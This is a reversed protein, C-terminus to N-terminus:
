PRRRCPLSLRSGHRDVRHDVDPGVRDLEVDALPARVARPAGDDVAGLHGPEALADRLGAVDGRRRDLPGDLRDGAHGVLRPPVVGDVSTATPVMPIRLAPLLSPKMARTRSRQPTVMSTIGPLLLAPEGVEGHLGAEAEGLSAQDDEVGAAAARLEGEAVAVRHVLLEAEVDARDAEGRLVPEAARDARSCSSSASAAIAPSNPRRSPTGGGSASTPMPPAIVLM